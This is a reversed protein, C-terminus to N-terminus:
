GHPKQGKRKIIKKVYKFMFIVAECALYIISVIGIFAGIAVAYM